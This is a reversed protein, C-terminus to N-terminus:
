LNGLYEDQRTVFSKSASGPRGECEALEVKAARIRLLYALEAAVKESWDEGTNARAEKFLWPSGEHLFWFKEKSGLQEDGIISDPDVHIIPFSEAVVVETTRM